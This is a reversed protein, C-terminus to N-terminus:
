QSEKVKEVWKLDRIRERDQNLLFGTLRDIKKYNNM